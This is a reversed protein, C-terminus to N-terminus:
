VGHDGEGWVPSRPDLLLGIMRNKFQKAAEPNKKHMARFIEMIVLGVEPVLDDATGSAKVRSRGCKQINCKIM